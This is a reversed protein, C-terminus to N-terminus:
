RIFLSLTVLQGTRMAPSGGSTGQFKLSKIDEESKELGALRATAKTGRFSGASTRFCRAANGLSAPTAGADRSSTRGEGSITDLPIGSISARVPPKGRPHKLSIQPDAEEPRVLTSSAASAAAVRRSSTQARTSAM